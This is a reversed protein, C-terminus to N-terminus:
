RTKPAELGTLSITEGPSCVQNKYDIHFRDVLERPRIANDPDDDWVVVDM